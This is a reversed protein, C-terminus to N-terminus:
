RVKELFAPAEKYKERLLVKNNKLSPLRPLPEAELAVYRPVKYSALANRCHRIIAQADLRQIDGHIVALPTEGFEADPAAIVVVEEVGEIEAIAGEV